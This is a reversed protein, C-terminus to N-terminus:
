SPKASSAQVQSCGLCSPTISSPPETLSLSKLKIWQLAVHHSLDPMAGSSCCLCQRGISPTPSLRNQANSQQQQQQRAEESTATRLAPESLERPQMSALPAEDDASSDEVPSDSADGNLATAAATASGDQQATADFASSEVAALEHQEHVEAPAGHDDSLMLQLVPLAEQMETDKNAEEQPTRDAYPSTGENQQAAEADPSSNIIDISVDDSFQEAQDAGYRPEVQAQMIDAAM